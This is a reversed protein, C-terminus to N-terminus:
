TFRLPSPTPQRGKSGRERRSEQPLNLAVAGYLTGVSWCNQCTEEEGQIDGPLPLSGAGPLSRRLPRPVSERGPAEAHHWPM